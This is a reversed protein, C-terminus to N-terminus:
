RVRRLANEVDRVIDATDEIGVSLRVLGDSVGIRRREAAPLSGHTMTAPHAALSEVGGLSEALTFVELSELFRRARARSGLDVTVIGGAGHTQRRALRRQPHSALGPYHVRRVKRHKDLRRALAAAGLAHQRMRIELTKIGRLVLYSDMASLIAGATNQIFGIREALAADACIVAGGLSDSHGNLYKTTSHVVVDAGLELPRQFCPTLFTNDVVFLVGHRRCWRAAARLDVLTLLPNTPSEVFLMRTRPRRAAEIAAPDAADVWSFELGANRLLGAFLRYIGGYGNASAIVHDGAQLLQATAAVAAMGSAFVHAGAGGELDALMRELAQRTPNVRRGYDYEVPTDLGPRKYTSTFYVPPMVAGTAPDCRQGGHIVRTAFRREKM